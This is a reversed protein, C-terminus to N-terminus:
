PDTSSPRTTAATPDPELDSSASTSHIVQRRPLPPSRLPAGPPPLHLNEGGEGAAAEPLEGPGGTEDGAPGPVWRKICECRPESSCVYERLWETVIIRLALGQSMRLSFSGSDVELTVVM